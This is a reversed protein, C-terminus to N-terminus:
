RMAVPSGSVEIEVAGCFCKEQWFEHNTGMTDFAINQRSADSHGSSPDTTDADGRGIM